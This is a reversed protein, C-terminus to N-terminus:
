KRRVKDRVAIVSPRGEIVMMPMNEFVQVPGQEPLTVTEIQQAHQQLFCATQQSWLTLYPDRQWGHKGHPAPPYDAPTEGPPLFHLGGVLWVRHGSDLTKQLKHLLPDLPAPQQM